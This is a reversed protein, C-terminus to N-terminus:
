CVNVGRHSGYPWYCCVVLFSYLRM